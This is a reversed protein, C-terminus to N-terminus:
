ADTEHLAVFADLAARVMREVGSRLVEPEVFSPDGIRNSAVLM